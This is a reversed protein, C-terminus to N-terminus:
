VGALDLPISRYQDSDGVREYVRIYSSTGTLLLAEGIIVMANQWRADSIELRRLKLVGPVSIFGAKDVRFADNILIHVEPQAGKTWDALCEDILAKAAQIREDFSMQDSM